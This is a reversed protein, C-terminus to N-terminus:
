GSLQPSSSVSGVHSGDADFTNWNAEDNNAPANTLKDFNGLKGFTRGEGNVYETGSMIATYWGFFAYDGSTLTGAGTLTFAQATFASTDLSAVDVAASTGVIDDPLGTSSSPTAPQMIYAIIDQSPASNMRRLNGIIRTPVFTVPVEFRSMRAAINNGSWGVGWGAGSTDPQDYRVAYGRYTSNNTVAAGSFTAVEQADDVAVIGDGPQTYNWTGTEVDDDNVTRAGITYVWTDTGDGSSYTLTPTTTGTLTGDAGAAPVYVAGGAGGAGAEVARSFVVTMEDGDANVTASVVTPPGAPADGGLSGVFGVNRLNLGRV